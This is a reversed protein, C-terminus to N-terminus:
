MLPSNTPPHSMKISIFLLPSSLFDNAAFGASNFYVNKLGDGCRRTTNIRSHPAATACKWSLPSDTNIAVACLGVARMFRGSGVALPERDSHKEIHHPVDLPRYAQAPSSPVAPMM